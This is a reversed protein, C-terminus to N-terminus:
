TVYYQGDPPVHLVGGADRLIYQLNLYSCNEDKCAVLVIRFCLNKNIFSHKQDFPLLYLYLVSVSLFLM